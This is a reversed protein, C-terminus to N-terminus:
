RQINKIVKAETFRQYRQRIINESPIKIRNLGFNYTTSVGNENIDVSFSDLGDRINVPVEFAGFITYTRKQYPEKQSYILNRNLEIHAARLLGSNTNLNLNSDAKGLFGVNPNPQAQGITNPNFSSTSNGGGIPSTQSQPNVDLFVRLTEEDFEKLNYKIYHYQSGSSNSQTLVTNLQREIYSTNQFTTGLGKVPITDPLSPLSIGALVTVPDPVNKKIALIISDSQNFKIPLGIDDVIDIAKGMSSDNLIDPILFNLDNLSDPLTPWYPSNVIVGYGVGKEENDNIGYNANPRQNEDALEDLFFNWISLASGISINPNAATYNFFEGLPTLGLRLNENYWEFNPTYDYSRYSRYNMKAVYFKGQIDAYAKLRQYLAKAESVGEILFVNYDLLNLKINESMSLLSRQNNIKTVPNSISTDLFLVSNLVNRIISNSDYYSMARLLTAFFISESYYAAKVFAQFVANYQSANNVNQTGFVGLDFFNNNIDLRKFFATRKFPNSESTVEEGAKGFFSSCNTVFTDKLDYEDTEEQIDKNSFQSVNIKIPVRLDIFELQSTENWFFGFGIDDGWASIVERLTGVYNQRYELNALFSSVSTHMPIGASAMGAFLEKGTYFVTPLELFVRDPFDKEKITVSTPVSDDIGDGIAITQYAEGLAIVYSGSSSQISPSGIQSTQNQNTSVPIHIFNLLVNYKDLYAISTDLYEVELLKGSPGKVKRYKVPYMQFSKIGVKIIDPNGSARLDGKNINYSGNESAFTITLSSPADGYNTSYSINYIYGGYAGNNGNISSKEIKKIAM